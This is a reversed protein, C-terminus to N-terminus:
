GRSEVYPSASWRGRGWYLGLVGHPVFIQSGGFTVCVQSLLRGEAWGVVVSAVLYCILWVEVHLSSLSQGVGGFPSTEACSLRHCSLVM